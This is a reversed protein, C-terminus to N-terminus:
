VTLSTGISDGSAARSGQQPAPVTPLCISLFTLTTTTPHPTSIHSPVWSPLRTLGGLIHRKPRTEYSTGPVVRLFSPTAPLPFPGHLPGSTPRLKAQTHLGSAALSPGM